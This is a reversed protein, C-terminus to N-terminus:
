QKRHKKYIKQNEPTTIEEELLKRLTDKSFNINHSSILIKFENSDLVYNVTEKETGWGGKPRNKLLEPIHEKIVEKKSAKEQGGKSARKQRVEYVGKRREYGKLFGICHAAHALSIHASLDNQNKLYKAASLYHLTAYFFHLKLESHKDETDPYSWCQQIDPWCIEKTRIYRNIENKIESHREKPWQRKLIARLEFGIDIQLSILTDEVTDLPHNMPPRQLPLAIDQQDIQKPKFM